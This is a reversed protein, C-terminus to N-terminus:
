DYQKQPLIFQDYYRLRDGIWNDYLDQPIFDNDLADKMKIYHDLFEVIFSDATAIKCSPLMYELLDSDITYKATEKSEESSVISWISTYEILSFVIRIMDGYTHLESSEKKDNGILWDISVDFESAILEIMKVSPTKVGRVYYSLMSPSINLKSALTKQTMDSSNLLFKLRTSFTSKTEM